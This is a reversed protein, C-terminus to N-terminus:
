GPVVEARVFRSRGAGLGVVAEAVALLALVALPVTWGDTVQHLLGAAIPGAAAVTYGVTQMMGSLQGAVVADRSRMVVFTLALSVGAGQGLGLVGAWAWAAMGHPALLLGLIGATTLVGVLLALPRHTGPRAAVMPVLLSTVISTLSNFSLVLAAEGAAMGNDVLITPVWAMLTYFLLSQLGMFAAVQWALPCRWLGRVRRRGGVPGEPRRARRARLVQPLWVAAAVVAPAAWFALSGNWGGLPGTLPVAIAAAVTAGGVMTATYVGTMPGARHAFDRKVVVPMLVNLVAVGMGVLLCGAFLAAEAPLARLAAAVVLLGLAALLVAETGWRRALVPALPSVLGLMLVPLATLLSAATSSLGFADTIEGVLPSLGTLSGRMNLALLLIGALLLATGRRGARTPPTAPTTASRPSSSAM